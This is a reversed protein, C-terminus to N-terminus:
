ILLMFSEQICGILKEYTRGCMFIVQATDAKKTIKDGKLVNRASALLLAFALDATPDTPPDPTNAVTIGRKSAAVVDIHEYGVGYSSIIRLNPFLDMLKADIPYQPLSYNIIGKVNKSADKDVKEPDMEVVEIDKAEEIMQELDPSLPFLPIRAVVPRADEM